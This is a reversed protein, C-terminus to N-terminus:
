SCCAQHGEAGRRLGEGVGRGEDHERGCLVDGFLM